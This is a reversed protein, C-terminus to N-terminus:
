KVFSAIIMIEVLIIGSVGQDLQMYLTGGGPKYKHNNNSAWRKIKIKSFQFDHNITPFYCHMFTLEIGLLIKGPSINPKTNTNYIIITVPITEGIHGHVCSMASFNISNSPLSILWYFGDLNM